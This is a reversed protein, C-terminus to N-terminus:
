LKDGRCRSQLDISDPDSNNISNKEVLRNETACVAEYPTHASTLIETVEEESLRVFEPRPAPHLYLYTLPKPKNFWTVTHCKGVQGIPEEADDSPNSLYTRIEEFIPDLTEFKDSFDWDELARILLEREKTM